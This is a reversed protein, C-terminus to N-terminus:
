TKIDKYIAEITNLLGQGLDTHFKPTYTKGVKPNFSYPTKEYHGSDGTQDFSFEIDENIIEKIMFMIDQVKMSQQGSLILNQNVFEDDIIETCIQAADEVHIYERLADPKGWYSVKKEKLAQLIFRFVANREDSRPGYLSGFRLITYQLGHQHHYEEIYNECAQKSCRYFGGSRSYVYLTSAFVYRKVKEKICADLLNLNGFINITASDKPNADCENIDAIGSFNYVMEANAVSKGVDKTNLVDGIFMQQDNRLWKSDIKDAVLVEHGATSLADCVHSGIFGSGGWVTIKM